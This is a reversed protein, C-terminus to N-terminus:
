KGKGFYKMAGQDSTDLAQTHTPGSQMFGAAISGANYGAQAGAGIRGLTKNGEAMSKALKQRDSELTESAAEGSPISFKETKM